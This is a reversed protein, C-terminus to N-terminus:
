QPFELRVNDLNTEDNVGTAVTGDYYDSSIYLGDLDAMVAQMEAKTPVPAAASYDQSLDSFIRWGSTEDLLVKNHGRPWNDSPGPVENILTLGAGQLGVRVYYDYPRGDWTVKMDFSLQGGYADHALFQSPAQLYAWGDTADIVSIFGGPWGGFTHYSVPEGGNQFSVWGGDGADFSEVVAPPNMIVSFTAGESVNFGPGIQVFDTAVFKVHSTSVIDLGDDVYIEDCFVQLEDVVVSWPVTAYDCNFRINAFFICSASNSCYYSITCYDTANECSAGWDWSGAMWDSYFHPFFVEYGDQGAADYYTCTSGGHCIYGAGDETYGSLGDVRMKIMTSGLLNPSILSIVSAIVLVRSLGTFKSLINRYM